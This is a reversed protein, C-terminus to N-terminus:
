AIMGVQKAAADMQYQSATVLVDQLSPVRGQPWDFKANKM